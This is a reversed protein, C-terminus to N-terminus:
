DELPVAWPAIDEDGGPLIVQFVRWKGSPAQVMRFVVEGEIGGVETIVDVADEDLYTVSDETELITLKGTFDFLLAKQEYGVLMLVDFIYWGELSNEGEGPKPIKNYIDQVADEQFLYHHNFMAMHKRWTLQADDSLVLWVTMYDQRQYAAVFTEVAEKPTALALSDYYTRYKPQTQFVSTISCAFTLMACLLISLIPFRIKM